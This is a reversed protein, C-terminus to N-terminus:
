SWSKIKILLVAAVVAAGAVFAWRWTRNKTTLAFTALSAILLVM